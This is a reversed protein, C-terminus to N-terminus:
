VSMVSHCRLGGLGSTEAKFSCRVNPDDAPSHWYSQRLRDPESEAQMTGLVQVSVRTDFEERLRKFNSSFSEIQDQPNSGPSVFSGIPTRVRRSDSSLIFLSVDEVLNLMAIATERLDTDALRKISDISPIMGALDEVLNNLERNQQDQEELHMWAKACIIFAIKASGTPDLEAM